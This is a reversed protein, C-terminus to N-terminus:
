ATASSCGLVEDAAAISTRKTVPARKRRGPRSGRARRMTGSGASASKSSRDDGRSAKGLAGPQLADLRDSEVDLVDDGPRALAWYSVSIASAQPGGQRCDHRASGRKRPAGNRSPAGATPAGRRRRHAAIAGNGMSLRSVAGKPMPRRGARTSLRGRLAARAAPQVAADQSPGYWRRRRGAGPAHVARVWAPCRRISQPRRASASTCSM